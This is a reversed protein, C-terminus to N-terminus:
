GGFKETMVAKMGRDLIDTLSATVSEILGPVRCLDPGFFAENSVFARVQEAPTQGSTAAFFELVAADDQLEYPQGNRDCILKGGELRGGRYLSMLSALSFTLRAPLEGTKEVYGLLSPMCRARWKSVSNLCISLLAHKIFPNRFRGTVAEAFSMLDDKPLSLTPIVEDYLTHQMFSAIMPDNMADLVYDYGCQFAAPVFSTHAGNLIRVKRQKYPKQNDTYIVPLGCEPLPLEKSIDRDSEIVWLGFPEATVLINDEYGLKEWIAKDEGRPYGTVIRDVLTSTFVCASDLWSEFKEGLNWIKALAKVCKKLEIGNDDILEVPLIILGKDEAYGFHEAREYLLKCLKGPYSAPPCASFDDDEKLVIGAETTNSVIFRLTDLKAYAAYKEYDGYCDVADSVSTVVRTQEVPEGDVLGRLMVTYRYDQEKFAPFLTGISIPKVLAVSGNFDAKENAIDIMYDVFARLFNGEGYQLVRVPRAPAAAMSANLRDM